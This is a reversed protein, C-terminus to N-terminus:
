YYDQGPVVLQGTRQYRTLVESKSLDLSLIRLSSEGWEADGGFRIIVPQEEDTFERSVFEFRAIGGEGIPSLTKTFTWDRAADHSESKSGFLVTKALETLKPLLEPDNSKPIM